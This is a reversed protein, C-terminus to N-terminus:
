IRELVTMVICALAGAFFAWFIVAPRLATKKDTQAAPSPSPSPSPSPPTKKTQRRWLRALQRRWGALLDLLTGAPCFVVCWFRHFFFGAVLVTFLLYWGANSGTLGFIVGFPEFSAASPNLSLFGFFLALFLVGQKLLRLHRPNLAFPLNLRSIRHAAEQIACFPCIWFCYLNKGLLAAPLLAGALVIYWLLNGAPAPFFGMVLSGFQALSLSRNLWFGLLAASLVLLPLRFKGAIRLRSALLSLAFLAAASIEKVGFVLPAEAKRPTLGLVAAAPRAAAHVAAAVARSSLTAGSVGDLDYQLVLADDAKKQAYQDFYGADTLKQLYSPTERHAFIVPPRLAGDPAVTVGLLLPGGYGVASGLGTYGLLLGGADYAAAFKDSVPRFYDAEPLLARYYGEVAAPNMKHAQGSFLLTGALLVLALVPLIKKM